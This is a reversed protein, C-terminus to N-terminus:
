DADQKATQERMKEQYKRLGEPIPGTQRKKSAPRPRFDYLPCDTCTCGEVQQRWTGLGSKEDYICMKCFENVAKRISM